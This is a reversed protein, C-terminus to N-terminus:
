GLADIAAAIRARARAGYVAMRHLEGFAKAYLGVEAPATINIEASLTEVQVREDDFIMFTEVPWLTRTATFPIVGFAVAPLSMVELLYGLQGAAVAPSGIRYRLVTEEVLLVFRHRGEFIVRSRALRASAAESADNPTGQFESITGLLAEAYGHTQLLGPVVNSCYVRFLGTRDYLPVDTEQRRRIGTRHIRKWEVYMEDVTRTAAVLDPIQEDAGCARCWARIDADSPLTRGNEIRSVKSKHWGCRAAVEIARLGATKRLDVLRSALRERAAQAASSPSATM